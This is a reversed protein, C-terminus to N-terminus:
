EKSLQEKIRKLELDKLELEELRMRIAEKVFEPVTAYGHGNEEDGVLEVIRVILSEPLAITRFKKRGISKGEHKGM